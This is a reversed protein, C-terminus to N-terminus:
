HRVKVNPHDRKLTRLTTEEIPSDRLDITELKPMKGIALKKVRTGHLDLECLQGLGDFSASELERPLDLLSRLSPLNALNITRIGTCALTLTELKPIEKLDLTRLKCPVNTNIITFHTLSMHGNFANVGAEAIGTDALFLERLKTLKALSKIGDDTIKKGDAVEIEIVDPWSSLEQLDADVVEYGQLFVRQVGKAIGLGKLSVLPKQNARKEVVLTRLGQPSVVLSAKGGLKEYQRVWEEAPLTREESVAYGHTALTFVSAVVIHPIVNTM